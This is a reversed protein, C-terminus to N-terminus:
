FLKNQAEDSVQGPEASVLPLEPNEKAEEELFPTIALNVLANMSIGRRTAARRM